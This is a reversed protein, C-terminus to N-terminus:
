QELASEATTQRDVEFMREISHPTSRKEKDYYFEARAIIYLYDQEIRTVFGIEQGVGPEVFIFNWNDPVIDTELVKHKLEM